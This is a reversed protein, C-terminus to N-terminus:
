TNCEIYTKSGSTRKRVMISSDTVQLVGSSFGLFTVSIGNWRSECPEKPNSSEVSAALVHLGNTHHPTFDFVTESFDCIAQLSITWRNNSGVGLDTPLGENVQPGADHWLEERGNEDATSDDFDGGRAAVSSSSMNPSWWSTLSKYVEMGEVPADNHELM